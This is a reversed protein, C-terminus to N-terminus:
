VVVVVVIVVVVVVAAVVVLQLQTTVRHYNARASICVFCILVFICLRFLVFFLLYLYGNYGLVCVCVVGM